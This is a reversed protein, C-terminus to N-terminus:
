SVSRFEYESESSSSPSQSYHKSRHHKDKKMKCRSQGSGPSSGGSNDMSSVSVISGPSSSCSPKPSKMNDYAIATAMNSSMISLIGQMTQVMSHMLTKISSMESESHEAKAELVAM